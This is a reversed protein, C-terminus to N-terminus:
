RKRKPPQKVGRQKAMEELRAQFKSKKPPKKRNQEIKKLLAEDDVVYKKTIWNQLFTIVNALFYYYTLAASFNNLIFMFMVPMIYMMTKMGPMQSSSSSTQDNLKMSLITSATMLLTFLSVHDGYLPINFPLDLISDYTSLDDAWLFSKQRLEISTPFFRFMAFLIPFQLLMPLCGGLPSVGAKKYLEMTAQQKKMADEKKPYRGSIEDIYPKLVRMKAQSLYSKYTLPFLVVKIIITLLLIIIGYNSIFKNLFNFIPIIVWLNIWRIIWGGLTVLEELQLDFKKLTNYHNPGFYFKLPISSTEGSEYPISIEARFNKLYSGAELPVSRLTASTFFQDAILVSSFFQQTFAIWRVRNRIVEESESKSRASLGDTEDQYYKYNITTYNNENGRGKEQQPVFIEWNLDLYTTRDSIVRDMNEMFVEFDMLYSEPKVTYRYELYSEEGAPLRMVLTQERGTADLYDASDQPVFYLDNTSITRNAAFFNLGFYTSDGNFLILPREDWTKFEKLEVSYVRGGRTSFTIKMLDNEVVVFRNEGRAARAFGGYRGELDTIEEPEAAVPQSTKTEAPAGAILSDTRLTDRGPRTLSFLSDIHRVRSFAHEDNRRYQLSRRYHVMAEEFNEARFLSDATVIEKEYAKKTQLSNYYSFGIFILAIMLLGYLTNRDM